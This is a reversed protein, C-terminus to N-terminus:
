SSSGHWRGYATFPAVGTIPKATIIRTAADEPIDLLM